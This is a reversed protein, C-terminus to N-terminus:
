FCMSAKSQTMLLIEYNWMRNQHSRLSFVKPLSWGFLFHIQHYSLSLGREIRCLSCSLAGQLKLSVGIMLAVM